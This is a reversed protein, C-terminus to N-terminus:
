GHAANVLFLVALVLQMVAYPAIWLVLRHGLRRRQRPSHM